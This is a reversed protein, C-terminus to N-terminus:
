ILQAIKPDNLILCDSLILLMINNYIYSQKEKYVGAILVGTFPFWVIHSWQKGLSCAHIKTALIISEKCASIINLM